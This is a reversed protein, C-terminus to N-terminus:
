HVQKLSVNGNIHTCGGRHQELLALADHCSLRGNDRHVLEAPLYKFYPLIRLLHKAAGRRVDDGDVGDVGANNGVILYGRLHQALKDATDGRETKELGTHEGTHRAGDRANLLARDNVRRDFCARSLNIQKLGGDRSSHARADIDGLRVAM